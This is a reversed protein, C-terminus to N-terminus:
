SVSIKMEKEFNKILAPSGILELTGLASKIKIAKKILEPHNNRIVLIPKFEGTTADCIFGDAGKVREDSIIGVKLARRLGALGFVTKGNHHQEILYNVAPRQRASDLQSLDYGHAFLPYNLGENARVAGAKTLVFVCMRLSSERRLVYGASVLRKLAREASVRSSHPNAVGWVWQAIQTVSLWGVLGIAELVRRENNRGRVQNSTHM